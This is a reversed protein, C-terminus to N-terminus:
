RAKIVKSYAKVKNRGSIKAQYLAFDATKVLEESSIDNSPIMSNLGVSITVYPYPNETGSPIKLDAVANCIDEGVKIAEDISTNSMVVVFEEGGYRAAFDSMGSLQGIIAAAIHRLCEDGAQHGYSDNYNKFLDVDILVLSVPVEEQLCHKWEKDLLEDFSRRNAIGTLWDLASFLTLQKNAKELEETRDKLQKKLTGVLLIMSMTAICIVVMKYFNEQSFEVLSRDTSFFYGCYLITLIGSISGCLFGGAFTALVVAIFCVVAPNPVKLSVNVTIALLTILLSIIFCHQQIFDYKVRASRKSM